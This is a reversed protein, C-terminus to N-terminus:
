GTLEKEELCKTPKKEEKRERSFDRLSSNSPNITNM